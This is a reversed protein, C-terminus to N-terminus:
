RVIENLCGSFTKISGRQTLKAVTLSMLLVTNTLSDVTLGQCCIINHTDHQTPEPSSLTIKCIAASFFPPPGSIVLMRGILIVATPSPMTPLVHKSIVQVSFANGVSYTGVTYTNGRDTYVGQINSIYIVNISASRKKNQLANYLFTIFNRQQVAVGYLSAM